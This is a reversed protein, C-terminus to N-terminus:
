CLALRMIRDDDVRNGVRFAYSGVEVFGAKEYLRRARHNDVYVTLVIDHFGRARAEDLAWALLSQALGIGKAEEDVYLQRLVIWTRGNDPVPLNQPGITCYGLLTGDASEGLM